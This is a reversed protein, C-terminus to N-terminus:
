KGRRFCFPSILVGQLTGLGYAFHLLPFIFPLVFVARWEKYDKCSKLTLLVDIIFYLGVGAVFPLCLWWPIVPVFSIGFLVACLIAAMVFLLPVFHYLSFIKPTLRMSTIGIWKGNGWKQKLMGKLTARTQYESSIRDSMCINYGHKRIRYHLENDESRLLKENFLGVNDFVERKYCAHAVTKVYQKKDSSRYTAVGSGFMSNEAMLLVKKGFNEGEIINIRRGGCVSEGSAICEVNERVFNDPIIAHADVRIILEGVSNKIAVNWGSPQIKGVNDLVKIGYYGDTKEAFEQMMIKTSDTSGSDVLVVEIKSHDYDQALINDFLRGINQEENLAIVCLSVLTNNEREQSQAEENFEQGNISNQM